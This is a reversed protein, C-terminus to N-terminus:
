KYALGLFKSEAELFSKGAVTTWDTCSKGEAALLRCRSCSGCGPCWEGEVITLLIKLLVM